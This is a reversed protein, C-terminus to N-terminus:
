SLVPWIGSAWLGFYRVSAIRRPRRIGSSHNLTTGTGDFIVASGLSMMRASQATAQHFVLYSCDRHLFDQDVGDDTMTNASAILKRFRHRLGTEGSESSILM